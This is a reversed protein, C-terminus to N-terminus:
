LFIHWKARDPWPFHRIDHSDANPRKVWPWMHMYTDHTCVYMHPHVYIDTSMKTDRRPRVTLEIIKWKEGKGNLSECTAHLQLQGRKNNYIGHLNILSAPRAVFFSLLNGPADPILGVRRPKPKFPSHILLLYRFASLRWLAFIIYQMDFPLCHARLPDPAPQPM